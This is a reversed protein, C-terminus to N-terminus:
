AALNTLNGYLPFSHLCTVPKRITAATSTAVKHPFFIAFRTKNPVALHKAKSIPYSTLPVSSCPIFLFYAAASIHNLSVYRDKRCRWTELCATITSFLL